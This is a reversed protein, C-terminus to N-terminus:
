VCYSWYCQWVVYWHWVVNYWWWGTDWGCGCGGWCTLWVVQWAISIIIIQSEMTGKDSDGASLRGGIGIIADRTPPPITPLNMIIVKMICDNYTNHAQISGTPMTVQPVIIIQMQNYRLVCVTRWTLDASSGCEGWTCLTCTYYYSIRVSLSSKPKM